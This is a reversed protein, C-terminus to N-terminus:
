GRARDRPPDAREIEKAISFRVVIRGISRRALLLKAALQFQFQFQFQFRWAGLEM